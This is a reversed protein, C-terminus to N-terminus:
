RIPSGNNTRLDGNLIANEVQWFQAPLSDTPDIPLFANSPMGTTPIFLRSCHHSVVLEIALTRALARCVSTLTELTSLGQTWIDEIGYSTSSGSAFSRRGAFLRAEELIATLLKPVQIFGLDIRSISGNMPVAPVMGSLLHHVRREISWMTLLVAEILQGTALTVMPTLFSAQSLPHNSEVMILPNDSRRLLAQDLADYYAEIAQYLAGAIQPFARISVPDQRVYDQANDPQSIRMEAALLRVPDTEVDTLFETYNSSNASCVSASVRSAYLYASWASTISPIQSLGLGVHIYAGNILALGEKRRLRYSHNEAAYDSLARAWHAGPIVDGCSYSCGKPVLPRFSSDMAATLAIDYLEPTIGTGGLSLAQIKCYTFCATEFDSFYPPGGLSHNEILQMQFRQIEDADILNTDLHGVLTNVGYILPPPGSSIMQDLHQSDLDIRSRAASWESLRGRTLAAELVSLCIRRSM